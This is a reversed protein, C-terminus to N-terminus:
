DLPVVYNPESYRIGEERYLTCIWDFEMGVDVIVLASNISSYFKEIELGFSEILTRAEFESLSEEFGVLIEGAVYDVGPILNQSTYEELCAQDIGRIDNGNYDEDSDNPVGDGDQDIDSDDAVGDNDDDPDVNNYVGDGDSDPQDVDLIGDNNDDLDDADMQNDNNDDPDVIDPWDDTDSNWAPEPVYAYDPDSFDPTGDCDNDVQKLPNFNDEPDKSMALKGRFAKVLGLDIPDFIQCDPITFSTAKITRTADAWFAIVRKPTLRIMEPETKYKGRAKSIVLMVKEGAPIDLTFRQKRIETGDKTTKGTDKMRKTEAVVSGDPRVASLQLKDDGTKVLVTVEIAMTVTAFLFISVLSLFAIAGIRNRKMVPERGKEM